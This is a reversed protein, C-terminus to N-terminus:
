KVIVLGTMSPHIACHYNYTGASSFKFSYSQGNSLAGSGFGNGAIQHPASDNNTWVITDGANITISSPSFSFNAINVTYNKASSPAPAPNTKPTPTPKPTPTTVNTNQEGSTPLTQVSGNVNAPPMNNMNSQSSIPITNKDYTPASYYKAWVLYGGALFVVVVIALIIWIKKNM